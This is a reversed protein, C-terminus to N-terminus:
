IDWLHKIRLYNMISHSFVLGFTNREALRKSKLLIIGILKVKIWDKCWASRHLSPDHGWLSPDQGWLSPGQINIPNHCQLANRAGGLWHLTYTTSTQREFIKCSKWVTFINLSSFSFFTSHPISREQILIKKYLKWFMRNIRRNFSHTEKIVELLKWYGLLGCITEPLLLSKLANGERNSPWVYLVFAHIYSITYKQIKQPWRKIYIEGCIMLIRFCISCVFIGSFESLGKKPVGQGHIYHIRHFTHHIQASVDDVNGGECARFFRVCNYIEIWCSIHM